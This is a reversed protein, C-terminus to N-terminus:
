DKRIKLEKFDLLGENKQHYNYIRSIKKWLNLKLEPAIAGIILYNKRGNHCKLFTAQRALISATKQTNCAVQFWDPPSKNSM